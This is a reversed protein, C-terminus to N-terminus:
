CLIGKSFHCCLGGSRALPMSLAYRTPIDGPAVCFHNTYSNTFRVEALACAAQSRSVRFGGTALRGDARGAQLGVRAHALAPSEFHAARDRSCRAPGPQTRSRTRRRGM